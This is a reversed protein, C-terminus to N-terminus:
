HFLGAAWSLVTHSRKGSTSLITWRGSVSTSHHNSPASPLPLRPTTKWYTYFRLKALHCLHTCRNYLLTLTTLVVSSRVQFHSLHCM